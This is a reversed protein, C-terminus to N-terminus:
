ERAIKSIIGGKRGRASGARGDGVDDLAQALLRVAVGVTVAPSYDKYHPQINSSVGRLEWLYTGVPKWDFSNITLAPRLRPSTSWNGLM